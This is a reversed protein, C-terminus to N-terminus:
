DRTYSYTEPYMTCRQIELLKRFVPSIKVKAEIEKEKKDTERASVGLACSRPLSLCLTWVLVRRPRSPWTPRHVASALEERIRLEAQSPERTRERLRVEVPRAVHRAIVKAIHEVIAAQKIKFLVEGKCFYKALVRVIALDRLSGLRRSEEHFAYQKIM